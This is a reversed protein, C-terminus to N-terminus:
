LSDRAPAADGGAATDAELVAALADVVHVAAGSYDNNQMYPFAQQTRIQGVKGDPLIGELGYGVEIRIKRHGPTGPVFLVLIGDDRKTGHGIGWKKFLAVAYDELADDGLASEPVTALALQAIGSHDLRSAVERVHAVARVDCATKLTRSVERLWRSDDSVLLIRPRASPPSLPLEVFFRTGNGISSEAWLDGGHREAIERAIRLGRGPGLGAVLKPLEAPAIGDGQDKVAIRVFRPSAHWAEVEVAGGRPSFRLANAILNDLIRGLLQGDAHIEVPRSPPTVTLTVGRQKAVPQAQAAATEILGGLDVTSVDLVDRSRQKAAELIREALQMARMGQRACAAACERQAPALSADRALLEANGIVAQLPSRVDHAADALGGELAAVRENLRDVRSVLDLRELAARLRRFLLEPEGPAVVDDAGAACYAAGPRGLVVLWGVRGRYQTLDTGPDVAVLVEARSAGDDADAPIGGRTLRTCLRRAETPPAAVRVRITQGVPM